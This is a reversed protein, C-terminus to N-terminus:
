DRHPQPRRLPPSIIRATGLLMAPLHRLAACRPWWASAYWTRADYTSQASAHAEPM